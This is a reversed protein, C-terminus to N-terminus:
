KPHTYYYSENMCPEADITMNFCVMM